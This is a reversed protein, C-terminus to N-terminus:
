FDETDFPKTLSRQKFGVGGVYQDAQTRKAFFEMVKIAVKRDFEKDESEPVIGDIYISGRFSRKPGTFSFIEEIDSDDFEGDNEVVEKLKDMMPNTEFEDDVQEMMPEDISSSSGGRKNKAKELYTFAEEGYIDYLRQFILSPNKRMYRIVDNPIYRSYKQGFIDKVQFERPQTSIETDSSYDQENLNKAISKRIQEVLDERTLKVIKRM